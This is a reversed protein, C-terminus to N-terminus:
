ILNIAKLHNLTDNPTYLVGFSGNKSTKGLVTGDNKFKLIYSDKWHMRIADKQTKSLKM